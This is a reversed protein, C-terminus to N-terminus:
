AHEGQFLRRFGIRIQVRGVALLDEAQIDEVLPHSNPYTKNRNPAGLLPLSPTVKHTNTKTTHGDHREAAHYIKGERSKEKQWQQDKLDQSEAFPIPFFVSDSSVRGLPGSSVSQHRPAFITALCNKDRVQRAIVRM